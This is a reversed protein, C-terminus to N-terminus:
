TAGRRCFRLENAGARKMEFGGRLHEGAFEAAFTEGDYSQLVVVGRDLRRVSGRAQRVPGEYELYVRRHDPIREAAIPANVAIPNRALRWTALREQGTIEILLDWHIVADVAGTAPTHELLAFM